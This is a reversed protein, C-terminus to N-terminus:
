SVKTAFNEVTGEFLPMPRKGIWLLVVLSYCDIEIWALTYEETCPSLNTWVRVSWSWGIFQCLEVGSSALGVRPRWEEKIWLIEINILTPSAGSGQFEFTLIHGLSNVGQELFDIIIDSVWSCYSLHQNGTFMVSLCSKKLLKWTRIDCLIYSIMVTYLLLIILIM